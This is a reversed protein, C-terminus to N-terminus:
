ESLLQWQDYFLKFVTEFAAYTQQKHLLEEYLNELDKTYNDDFRRTRWLELCLGRM